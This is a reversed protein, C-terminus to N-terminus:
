KFHTPKSQPVSVQSMLTPQFDLPLPLLSPPLERSYPLPHSIILELVKIPNEPNFCDFRPIESEHYHPRAVEM